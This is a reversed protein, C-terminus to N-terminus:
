EEKLFVKYGVNLARGLREAMVEDISKKCNEMRSITSRSIGLKDALQQQTFGERYRAGRLATGPNYDPFAERWPIAEKVAERYEESRRTLEKLSSGQPDQITRRGFRLDKIKEILTKIFM